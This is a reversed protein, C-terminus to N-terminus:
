GQGPKRGGRSERETTYISGFPAKGGGKGKGWVNKGWAPGIPARKKKQLFLDCEKKAYPSGGQRAPELGGACLQLRNKKEFREDTTGKEGHGNPLLGKKRTGGGGWSNPVESDGKERGGLTVRRQDKKKKKKKKHRNSPSRRSPGVLLGGGGKRGKERASHCRYAAKRRQISFQAEKKKKKGNKKKKEWPNKINKSKRIGLRDGQEKGRKKRSGEGKRYGAKGLVRNGGEWTLFIPETGKEGRKKKHTSLVLEKKGREGWLTPLSAV